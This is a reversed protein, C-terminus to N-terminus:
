VIPPFTFLSCYFSPAGPDTITKSMITLKAHCRWKQVSDWQKKCNLFSRCRILLLINSTCLVCLLCYFLSKTCRCLLKHVILAVKKKFRPAQVTSMKFKIFQLISKASHVWLTLPSLLIQISYCSTDSKILHYHTLNRIQLAFLPSSKKNWKYALCVIALINASLGFSSCVVILVGM